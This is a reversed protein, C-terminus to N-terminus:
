GAVISRARLIKGDTTEVEWIGAREDWTARKVGCNFRIHSRVGYKDACHNLYALIEGQPAFLRSWTPNPEFSFSYLPPPVDLAARSSRAGWPHPMAGAKRARAGAGM